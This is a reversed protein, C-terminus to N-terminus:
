GELIEKIKQLKERCIKLERYTNESYTKKLYETFARDNLIAFERYAIFYDYDKIRRVYDIQELLKKLDYGDEKLSKIM